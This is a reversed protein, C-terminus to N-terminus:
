LRFSVMVQDQKEVLLGKGSTWGESSESLWYPICQYLSPVYPGLALVTVMTIWYLQHMALPYLFDHPEKSPKTSGSILLPFPLGLTNDQM